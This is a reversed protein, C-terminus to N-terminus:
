RTPNAFHKRKWFSRQASQIDRPVEPQLEKYILEKRHFALIRLAAIRDFNGGEPRYLDIERLTAPCYITHLNLLEKGYEDKTRVSILWDRLYMNGKHLRLNEKGSGIHMGYGRKVKSRPLDADFALEFEDALWDLLKFRKAYDITNGRDNEFGIKANYYRALKFLVENFDDQTKPRGFYTAVIRDGPPVLNNPQMYVYAAGISQSDSSQDFAYPDLSIIYMNDPVKGNM